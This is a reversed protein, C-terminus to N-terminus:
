ENEQEGESVMMCAEWWDTLDFNDSIIHLSYKGPFVTPVSCLILDERGCIQLAKEMNEHIDPDYDLVCTGGVEVPMMKLKFDM